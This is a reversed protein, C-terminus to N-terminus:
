EGGTTEGENDALYDDSDEDEQYLRDRHDEETESATDPDEVDEEVEMDSDAAYHGDIYDEGFVNPTARRIGSIVCNAFM